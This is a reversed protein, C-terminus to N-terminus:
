RLAPGQADGGLPRWTGNSWHLLSIAGSPDIECRVAGDRFTIALGIEAGGYQRLVDSRAARHGGSIVIWDPACWQVLPRPDVTLSGHHPAMLVHSPRPPQRILEQMGIGELDGPLLVRKGRSELLLCLSTANDSATTFRKPPHLVRWQFGTAGGETGTWWTDCDISRARLAAHVDRVEPDRSAWFQPTSTVNSVVFRDALGVVANYHDADAHSLILREIRAINMSWLAAAIGRHSQGSSGLRGADYLWVGGGPKEIVVAAGHGVDLFTVACPAATPDDASDGWGLVGRPGFAFLGVGVWIWAVLASGLVWQYRGHFVMWYALVAAYFVLTWWMPPAPLWVHGGPVAAAGDIMRGISWLGVGCVAGVADGVFPCWGLIGTLLGAILSVTLPVSVLVNLPIAIPALVHFHTWVLPSTILWVWFSLRLMSHAAAGAQGALSRLVSREATADPVPVPLWRWSPTGPTLVFVGIAAVALFSLQVGVEDIYTVRMLFLVLAALGLLNSLRTRRGLMRAYEAAIVLVVARVVPPKADALLAYFLCVLAIGAFRGRGDLHMLSCVVLVAWAVIEVHMGSIALMHLTGTAMLEQQDEWDVQQRQGIVLAAALPAQGWVVRRHLHNDVWRVVRARQRSWWWRRDVGLPFIQAISDTRLRTFEAQRRSYAAFDFAGPNTPPEIRSLGGHVQLIDGPLIRTIRGVCSVPVRGTGATWRGADQLSVCQLDWETIWARDPPDEPRYNPNPRWRAAGTVIGRLVVPVATRRAWGSLDDGPPPVSNGGYWAGFAVVAMAGCAVAIPPRSRWWLSASLAVVALGGSLWLAAPHSWDFQWALRGGLIALGAAWAVPYRYLCAAVRTAASLSRDGEGADAGAGGDPTQASRRIWGLTFVFPAPHSM